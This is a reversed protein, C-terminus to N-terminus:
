CPQGHNVSKRNARFFIWGLTILVITLFGSLLPGYATKRKLAKSRKRIAQAQRHGILLLGQYCGFLLFLM